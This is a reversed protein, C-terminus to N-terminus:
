KTPSKTWIVELGLDTAPILPARGGPVRSSAALGTRNGVWMVTLLLVTHRALPIGVLLPAVTQKNNMAMRGFTARIDKAALVPDPNKNPGEPNVYDFGHTRCCPPQQARSKDAEWTDARGGALGFTKFNM